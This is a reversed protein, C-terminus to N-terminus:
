GDLRAALRAAAIARCADQCLEAIKAWDVNGDLRVGVWGRDGV